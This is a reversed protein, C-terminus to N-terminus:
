PGTLETSPVFVEGVDTQILVGTTQSPDSTVALSTEIEGNCQGGVERCPDCDEYWTAGDGYITQCVEDLLPYNLSAHTTGTDAEVVEVTDTGVQFRDAQNKAWTEVSDVNQVAWFTAGGTYNNTYDVYYSATGSIDGVPDGCAWGCQPPLPEWNILDGAYATAWSVIESVSPYRIGTLPETQDRDPTGPTPVPENPGPPDPVLGVIFTACLPNETLCTNPEPPTPDLGPTGPVCTPCQVTVNPVTKDPTTVGPDLCIHFLDEDGHGGISRSTTEDDDCQPYAAANPAVSLLGVSLMSVSVIITMLRKTKLKDVSSRVMDGM